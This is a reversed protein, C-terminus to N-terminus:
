VVEFRVNHKKWLDKIFAKEEKSTSSNLIRKDKTTDIFLCITFDFINSYVLTQGIGERINFGDCGRKVEIAIRIGNFEVIMDPRHSTGMFLNNSINTKVNGEWLLSEKAKKKATKESINNQRAYLQSITNLLYPYIFQKIRSENMKRYNITDYVEPSKLAKVISDLLKTRSVSKSRM